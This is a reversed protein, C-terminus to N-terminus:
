LRRLEARNGYSLSDSARADFRGGDVLADHAVDQRCADALRRRPLRREPAARAVVDRCRVM